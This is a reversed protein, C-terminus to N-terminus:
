PWYTAVPEDLSLLGRDIAMAMCIASLGKSSSMCCVITDKEWAQSRQRDRHGGWLDVVTEGDVVLSVGAGVEEGLDFGTQFADRIQDFEPLCFGQLEVDADPAAVSSNSMSTSGENR